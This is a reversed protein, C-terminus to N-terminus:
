LLPDFRALSKSNRNEADDVESSLRHFGVRLRFLFLDARVARLNRMQWAGYFDAGPLFSLGFLLSHSSLSARDLFGGPPM